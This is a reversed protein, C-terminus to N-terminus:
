QSEEDNVEVLKRLLFDLAVLEAPNLSSTTQRTIQHAHPLIEQLLRRGAEELVVIVKRKDTKDALLAILKRQELREVVGRTTALDIAAARGIESLSSAQRESLACLVALQVSTLQPDPCLRQFIATHRQYARRLLHGVQQGFKYQGLGHGPAAGEGQTATRWNKAANKKVAM